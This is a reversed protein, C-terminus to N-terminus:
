NSARKSKYIAFSIGHGLLKQKSLIGDQIETVRKTGIDTGFLQLLDCLSDMMLTEIILPVIVINQCKISENFRGILTCGMKIETSGLLSERDTM